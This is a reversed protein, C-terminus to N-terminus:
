AADKDAQTKTKNIKGDKFIKPKIKITYFDTSIKVAVASVVAMGLGMFGKILFVWTFTDIDFLILNYIWGWIIAVLVLLNSLKSSHDFNLLPWLKIKNEYNRKDRYNVHNKSISIHQM